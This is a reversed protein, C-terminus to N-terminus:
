IILRPKSPQVPTIISSKPKPAEVLTHGTVVMPPQSDGSLLSVWVKGTKAIEALEDADFEWCSICQGDDTVAVPLPPLQDDAGDQDVYKLIKNVGTFGHPKGM